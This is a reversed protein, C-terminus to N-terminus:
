SSYAAGCRPCFKDSMLSRRKGCHACFRVKPKETLEPTPAPALEEVGRLQLKLVVPVTETNFHESTTFAQGSLSGEVTAGLSSASTAVVNCSYNTSCSGLLGGSTPEERLVGNWVAPQVGQDWWPRVKHNERTKFSRKTILPTPIPLVERYFRVEVEGNKGDTPDNVRGDSLPVFQFRNGETLSHDLFRELDLTQGAQVVIDGLSSVPRGDIFVQAKARLWHKNILRIKYETNFRLHVTRKIERVPYGDQLISLVFDSDYAMM